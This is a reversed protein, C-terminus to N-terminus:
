EVIRWSEKNVVIELQRNHNIVWQKADELSNFVKRYRQFGNLSDGSYQYLPVWMEKNVIKIKFGLFGCREEFTEIQKYEISFKDGNTIFRVPYKQHSM